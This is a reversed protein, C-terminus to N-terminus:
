STVFSSILEIVPDCQYFLDYAPQDTKLLYISALQISTPQRLCGLSRHKDKASQPEAEVLVM